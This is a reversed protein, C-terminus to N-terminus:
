KKYLQKFVFSEICTNMLEDEEDVLLHIEWLSTDLKNSGVLEENKELPYKGFYINKWSCIPLVPLMKDNFSIYLSFYIDEDPYTNNTCCLKEYHLQYRISVTKSPKVNIVPYITKTSTNYGPENIELTHIYEAVPELIANEKGSFATMLGLDYCYEVIFEDPTINKSTNNTLIIDFVLSQYDGTKSQLIKELILHTSDIENVHKSKIMQAFTKAEILISESDQNLMRPDILPDIKDQKFYLYLLLSSISVIIVFVYYFLQHSRNKDKIYQNDIIDLIAKRIKNRELTYFDDTIVSVRYKGELFNLSGLVIKSEKIERKSGHNSILTLAEILKDAQINQEIEQKIQDEM